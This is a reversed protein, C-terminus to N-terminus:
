FPRRQSYFRDTETNNDHRSTVTIDDHRDVKNLRLTLITVVIDKVNLQFIDKIITYFKLLSHKKSVNNIQNYINEFHM